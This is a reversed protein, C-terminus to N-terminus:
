AELTITVRPRKRRKESDKPDGEDFFSAALDNAFIRLKKKSIEMARWLISNLLVVLSLKVFNKCLQNGFDM